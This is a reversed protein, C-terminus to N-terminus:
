AVPSEGQEASYHTLIAPEYAELINVIVEILDEAVAEPVEYTEVLHERYAEAFDERNTIKALTTTEESELLWDPNHTTTPNSLRILLDIEQVAREGIDDTLSADKVYDKGHVEFADKIETEVDEILLPTLSLEVMPESSFQYRAVQRPEVPRDEAVPTEKAISNVLNNM